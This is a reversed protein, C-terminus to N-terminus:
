YSACTIRPVVDLLEKESGNSLFYIALLLSVPLDRRFTSLERTSIGERYAFVTVNCLLFTLARLLKRNASSLELFLTVFSYIIRISRSRSNVERVRFTNAIMIEERRTDCLPSRTQSLTILVPALYMCTKFLINTAPM